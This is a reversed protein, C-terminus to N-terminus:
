EPHRRLATGALWAEVVALSLAAVVWMWAVSFLEDRVVEVAAPSDLEDIADSVARLAAEDPAQFYRGGTRDALGTLTAADLPLVVDIPGFETPYPVTGGSGIGVTVIRVQRAAALAAADAPPVWERVGEGDSLLLLLRDGARGGALREVASVVAAGLATGEGLLEAGPALDRIAARVANHDRTLPSRLASRAAFTMLGFRDAPRRDVVREAFTRAAGLRDPSFDLAQMSGSVDILLMVDAGGYSSRAPSWALPGALAVLACALAVLRLVDPLWRARERWTRPLPGFLESAHAPVTAKSAHQRLRLVLLGAPLALLALGWPWSFADPWMM